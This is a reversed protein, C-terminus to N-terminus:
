GYALFEQLLVNVLQPAELNTLHGAGPVMVLRATPIAATLGQMTKPPTIRDQDGGVVLVPMTLSAVVSTADPRVAMARQAAAVGPPQWRRVRAMLPDVVHPLRQAAPGLFRGPAEVALWDVGEALVRNALALREARQTDNDATAKTDLLAVADIRPAFSRLLAMAVYGGMSLGVVAFRDVGREDLAAIVSAAYDALTVDTPPPPSAGCGWFDPRLCRYRDSLTAVQHDWQSADLPFGHLFVVASGSGADHM